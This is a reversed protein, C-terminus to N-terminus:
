EKLLMKLEASEVQGQDSRNSDLKDCNENYNKPSKKLTEFKKEIEKALQSLFKKFVCENLNSRLFYLFMWNSYNCDILFTTLDYRRIYGPKAM